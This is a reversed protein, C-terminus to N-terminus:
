HWHDPRVGPLTSPIPSPAPVEPAPPARAPFRRAARNRLRSLIEPHRPPSAQDSAIAESSRHPATPPLSPPTARGPPVPPVDPATASARYESASAPRAPLCPPPRCAPLRRDSSSLGPSASHHAPLITWWRPLRDSREADSVSTS